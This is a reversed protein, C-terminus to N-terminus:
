NGGANFIDYDSDTQRYHENVQQDREPGKSGMAFTRFADAGHSAWNHLPTESMIQNKEDWKKTYARLADLGRACNKEDFWCRPLVLRSANIGDDFNQRDQVRIRGLKYGVLMEERTKGTGLERARVDHPLEHFDYIYEKSKVEKVYYDLGKGSMEYYDIVHFERAVAQVFWIATSDGIGLDWYTDVPMAADYAVRTIQKKDEIQKILHAYYSGVLAAGFDCEYEQAYEEASMTARASDLEKQPLIGTQSAKFCVSFWEPDTDSTRYIKYFHNHGRPTGIFIVWGERDSLAPRVVQGWIEPHMEAYEDLVCGDLYIGRVSGPNEAGLLMIRVVDGRWPRPIEVRLDQENTKVGPLNVTFDKLMNWAIRKAQGYNPAIYAYQPDRKDCRLSQDIIENISFVTKGFRRHCVIVNFRKLMMHLHEQYIRPKYGTYIKQQKAM